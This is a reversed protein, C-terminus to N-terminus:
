APRRRLNTLGAIALLCVSAPEPINTTNVPPTGANWNGLVENLDDISVFGDGSPDALPNAPPVNQNWNGLVINLDNIGVFGDGDLDGDLDSLATIRELVINDFHVGGGASTVGSPGGFRLQNFGVPGSHLDDYTTYGDISGNRGLDLAFRLRDPSITVHLRHWDAGRFRNVPLQEEGVTETGLDWGVWNPNPTGNTSDFLIARHAFYGVAKYIGLELINSSETTDWMGLTMRKNLPNLPFLPNLSTDDDFIDVSLRVWENDTVIVSSPLDLTNVPGGPHYAFHGFEDPMGDWDYDLETKLEGNSGVWVGSMAATDAYAEFDESVVVGVTGWTPRALGLVVASGLGFLAKLM